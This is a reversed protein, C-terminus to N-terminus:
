LSKPLEAITRKDIYTNNSNEVPQTFCFILSSFTKKLSIDFPWTTTICFRATLNRTHATIFMKKCFTELDNLVVFSSLFMMRLLKNQALLLNQLYNQSHFDLNRCVAFVFERPASPVNLQNCSDSFHWGALSAVVFMVSRVRAASENAIAVTLMKDSHDVNYSKTLM